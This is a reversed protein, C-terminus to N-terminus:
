VFFLSSVVLLGLLWCGVIGLILLWNYCAALLGVLWCCAVWLGDILGVDRCNNYDM